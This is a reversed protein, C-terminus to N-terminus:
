ALQTLLGSEKREESLAKKLSNGVDTITSVASKMIHEKLEAIGVSSRLLLAETLMGLNLGSVVHFNPTEIALSAAVRAPSGGPIDVICLISDEYGTTSIQDRLASEVDEAGDGPYLDITSVGETGGSIIKATELMAKGLGAHTALVIKIM